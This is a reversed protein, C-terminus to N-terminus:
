KEYLWESLDKIVLNLAEEYAKIVGQTSKKIVKVKHEILISDVFKAKKREILRFRIRVHVFSNEKEYVEEFNELSSELLLNAVVFSKSSIVSAFIKEKELAETFIQQLRTALFDSWRAYKYPKLAGNQKYFLFKTQAIKDGEVRQVRLVRKDDKPKVYSTSTNPELRYVLARKEVDKLSCGTILFIFIFFWIFKM